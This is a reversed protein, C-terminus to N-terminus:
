VSEGTQITYFHQGTHEIDPGQHRGLLQNETNVLMMVMQVEMPFCFTFIMKVVQEKLSSDIM